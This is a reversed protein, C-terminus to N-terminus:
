IALLSIGQKKFTDLLIPEYDDELYVDAGADKLEETTLDTRKGVSLLKVLQVYGKGRKKEEELRFEYSIFYMRYKIVVTMYTAYGNESSGVTEKNKITIDPNDKLGSILQNLSGSYEYIKMPNVPARYTMGHVFWLIGVIGIVGIIAFVLLIKSKM